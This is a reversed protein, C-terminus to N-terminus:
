KDRHFWIIFGIGAIVGGIAIVSISAFIWSDIETLEHQSNLFFWLLWSGLQGAILILVAYLLLAYRVLKEIESVIGRWCVKLVSLLSYLGTIM